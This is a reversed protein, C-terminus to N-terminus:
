IEGLGAGLHWQGLHLVCLVNFFKWTTLSWRWGMMMTSLGMGPHIQVIPGVLMLVLMSLSIILVTFSGLCRV